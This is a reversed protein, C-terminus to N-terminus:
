EVNTRRSRTKPKVADRLETVSQTLEEIDQRLNLVLDDEKRIPKLSGVLRLLLQIVGNAKLKSLGLLESAAFLVIFTLAIPDSPVEVSPQPVVPIETRTTM